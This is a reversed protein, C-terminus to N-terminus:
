SHVVVHCAPCDNTFCYLQIAASVHSVSVSSCLVHIYHFAYAQASAVAQAFSFMLTINTHIGEKELEGAAQIGEWTGALKILIRDRAAIGEDEYM